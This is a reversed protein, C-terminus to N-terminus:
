TSFSLPQVGMKFFWLPPPCHGGEIESTSSPETWGWEGVGGWERHLLARGVGRKDGTNKIQGAGPSLPQVGMKFFWLPPPCHGGEIESTSSPEAWGWEGVVELVNRLNSSFDSCHLSFSLTSLIINTIQFQRRTITTQLKARPITPMQTHARSTKQGAFFFAGRQTSTVRKM